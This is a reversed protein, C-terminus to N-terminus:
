RATREFYANFTRTKLFHNFFETDMANVGDMYVERFFGLTPHDADTTDTVRCGSIKEECVFDAVFRTFLDLIRKSEDFTFCYKLNLRRKNESSGRSGWFAPLQDVRKPVV